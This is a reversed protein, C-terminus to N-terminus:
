KDTDSFEGVILKTLYGVDEGHPQLNVNSQFASKLSQRDVTNQVTLTYDLHASHKKNSSHAAVRGM